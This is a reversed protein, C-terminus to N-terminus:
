HGSDDEDDDGGSGGGGGSTSFSLRSGTVRGNQSTSAVAQFEYTTDSSLGALQHSFIGTSNMSESATSNPLDSGYEGWEFYVDASGAGGLDQLDGNLYASSDTISSADNTDVDLTSASALGTAGSAM